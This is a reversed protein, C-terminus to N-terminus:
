SQTTGYKIEKATKIRKDMREIVEPLPCCFEGMEKADGQQLPAIADLEEATLNTFVNSDPLERRPHIVNPLM